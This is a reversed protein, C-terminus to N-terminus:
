PLTTERGDLGTTPPLMPATVTIPPIEIPNSLVVGDTSDTLTFRGGASGEFDPEPTLTGVASGATLGGAITQTSGGDLPPQTQQPNAQNLQDPATSFNQTRTVIVQRIHLTARLAFETSEDTPVDLGAMLMNIYSRKGTRVTFLKRENRLRLLRAYTDAAFSPSHGSNSWFCELSLEAPRVYAHDSIPAPGTGLAVPHETIVMEDRHDERVTLQDVFIGTQSGGGFSRGYAIYGGLSELSSSNAAASLRDAIGPDNPNAAGAAGLAAKQALSDGAGPAFPTADVM